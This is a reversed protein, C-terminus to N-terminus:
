FEILLDGKQDTRLIKIKRNELKSIIEQHPHGFKNEKGCSIVAQKPNVAELFDASTATKSGHHGIKLVQARLKELNDKSELYKLIEKEGETELDGTLIIKEDKYTAIATISADNLNEYEMERSFFPHIIELSFDSGIKIKEGRIACLKPLALVEIQEIMKQYNTNDCVAESDLILGVEFNELIHPIGGVHDDHGHTLILLDIFNDGVPLYKELKEVIKEDPGGDILIQVSSQPITLLLADGQGVDLATFEFKSPLQWLFSLSLYKLIFLFAVANLIILFKKM